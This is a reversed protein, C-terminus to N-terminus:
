KYKNEKEKEKKKMKRKRRLQSTIILFYYIHLCIFINNRSVGNFITTLFYINQYFEVNFFLLEQEEPM